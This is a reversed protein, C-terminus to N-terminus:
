ATAKLGFKNNQESPFGGPALAAARIRVAAVVQLM